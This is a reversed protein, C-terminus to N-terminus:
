FAFERMSINILKSPSTHLNKWPNSILTFNLTIPAMVYKLDIKKMTSNNYCKASPTLVSQFLFFNIKRSKQKM